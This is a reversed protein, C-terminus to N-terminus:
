GTYREGGGQNNSKLKMNEALTDAYKQKFENADKQAKEVRDFQAQREEREDNLLRRYEAILAAQDERSNRGWANKVSVLATAGAGIVMGVGAWLAPSEYWASENGLLM